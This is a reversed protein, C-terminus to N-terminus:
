RARPQRRRKHALARSGRRGNGPVSFFDSEASLRVIAGLGQGASGGTSYGNELCLDLNEMGPGRDIALLELARAGPAEEAEIRRLLIEGGGGHKLLNTSAETAVIAIQESAAEDFGIEGAMKRAIRRAEAPQSSEEVAIRVSEAM